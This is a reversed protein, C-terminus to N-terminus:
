VDGTMGTSSSCSLTVFGGLFFRRTASVRTPSTPEHFLKCETWGWTKDQSMRGEQKEKGGKCLSMSTEDRM